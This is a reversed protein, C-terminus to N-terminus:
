TQTYATTSDLKKLHSIISSYLQVKARVLKSHMSRDETSSDVLTGNQDIISIAKEVPPRYCTWTSSSLYLITKAQHNVRGAFFYLELQLQQLSYCHKYYCKICSTHRYARGNYLYATLNLIDNIAPPKYAIGDWAHLCLCPLYIFPTELVIM